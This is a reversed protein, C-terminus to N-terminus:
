RLRHHPPVFRNSGDTVGILEGADEPDRRDLEGSDMFDRGNAFLGGTAAFAQFYSESFSPTQTM